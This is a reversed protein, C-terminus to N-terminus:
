RDLDSFLEPPEDGLTFPTGGIKSYKWLWEDRSPAPYKLDPMQNWSVIDILLTGEDKPIDPSVSIAAILEKRNIEISIGDKMEPHIGFVFRVEQEYRYSPQKYLYPRMYWSPWADARSADFADAAELLKNAPKYRVPSILGRLQGSNELARKVRGVTSHILVGRSGYLHWMANSPGDYLNWCWIARRQALEKFWWQIRAMFDMSERLSGAIHPPLQPINAFPKVLENFHNRMKPLVLELALQGELNDMSRMKLLSPIFARGTRYLFLTSLRVYRVIQTDDEIESRITTRDDAEMELEVWRKESAAM